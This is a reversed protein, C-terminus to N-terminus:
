AKFRGMIETLQRARQEIAAIAKQTQEATALTEKSGSNIEAIGTVLDAIGSEQQRAAQDIQKMAVTTQEIADAIERFAEAMQQGIKSADSLKQNGTESNNIVTRMSNQIDSIQSAIRGSAEKSQNALERVQTAVVAFGRGEEGARAAEISANLALLKTQEAIENVSTTIQTIQQMQQSLKLISEGATEFSQRVEDNKAATSQTLQLGDNARKATEEAAQRVAKARDAFEQITAKFEESTSSIENVSSAAETMSAVQEQSATNIEQSSSSLESTMRKIESLLQKLSAAMRNFAAGLQGVEDGSEVLQPRTLDGDAIASALDVLEALPRTTSRTIWAGVIVSLLVGVALLSWIIIELNRTNAVVQDRKATVRPRLDDNLLSELALRVTLAAPVADKSLRHNAVNWDEAGRLDFMQQPLPAFLTRTIKVTEWHEPQDGMLMGLDGEIKDFAAQNITWQDDFQKQFQEDGSLVYARINDMSVAFSGRFNAMNTLLTKRQEDAEYAAEEDIMATIATFIQTAKPSAETLLIKLAPINDETQAIAEIEDQIDKLDTLKSQVLLVKEHAALQRIDKKELAAVDVTEGEGAKTTLTVLQGISTNIQREWTQERDTKFQRDGLLIWGRLQAVSENVGNLVRLSMEATPQDKALLENTVASSRRVQILTVAVVIILVLTVLCFGIGIKVGMKLNKLNKLM